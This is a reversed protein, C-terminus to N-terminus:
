IRCGFEKFAVKKALEAALISTPKLNEIECEEGLGGLMPDRYKPNEICSICRSKQPQSLQSSQIILAAQTLIENLDEGTFIPGEVNLQELM